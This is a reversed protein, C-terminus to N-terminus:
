QSERNRAYVFFVRSGMSAYEAGKGSLSFVSLPNPFPCSDSFVLTWGDMREIFERQGNFHDINAIFTIGNLDLYEELGREEVFARYEYSNVLGDLNVVPYDCYYGVYGADWSAAIEGEELAANLYDVANHSPRAPDPIVFAFGGLRDAAYVINFLLLVIVVFSSLVTLKWRVRIGALLLFTFLFLLFVAPLWYYTYIDLISEYMVSYYGFILILYVGFALVLERVPSVMKRVFVFVLVAFFVVAFASVVGPIRGGLTALSTLNSIAHRFLQPDGSSLFRGLNEMGSASKIYGSVPFFGGFFVRNVTTYLALYVAVPLATCLLERYRKRILLVLFIGAALALSDLRAAVMLVTFFWLARTSGRGTLLRVFMLLTMSFCFLLLGTEMGSVAGKSWLWFNFVYAASGFLSLSVKGTTELLLRYLVYGSSVFFLSQLVTVFVAAAELNKIFLFVPVIIIQWLPHFGNTLNISDFSPGNGISFNRAIELYYYGDDVMLLGYVAVVFCIGALATVPFVFPLLKMFSKSWNKKM